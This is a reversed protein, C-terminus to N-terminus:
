ACLLVRLELYMVCVCKGKKYEVRHAEQLLPAERGVILEHNGLLPMQQALGM